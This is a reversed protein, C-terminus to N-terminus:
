TVRYSRGLPSFEHISQVHAAAHETQCSLASMRYVCVIICVHDFSIKVTGIKGSQMSKCPM